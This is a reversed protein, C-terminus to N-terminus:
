RAVWLNAVTLGGDGPAVDDASLVLHTQDPDIPWDAALQEHTLVRSGPGLQDLASEVVGGVASPPLFAFVLDADGFDTRSGDGSVIEIKGDLGADAVNSRAKEALSEDIEYGLGRCDFTRAAEILIRGDGCGVDTILQGPEVNALRLLPAILGIPTGLYIGLDDAAVPKTGVPAGLRDRGVRVARLPWYAPWAWTPLDAALFDRRGPTLKRALPNDRWDTGDRHRWDLRIRITATDRRVYDLWGVGAVSARQAAAGVLDDLGFGFSSLVETATAVDRGSAADLQIVASAHQMRPPVPELTANLMASRLGDVVHEAVSQTADALGTTIKDVRGLLSAADRTLDDRRELRAIVSSVDGARLGGILLAEATSGSLEQGRDDGQGDLNVPTLHEIARRTATEVTAAVTAVHPEAMMSLHDGNASDIHLHGVAVDSWGLEINLFHRNFVDDLAKIVLMDGPYPKFQYALQTRINDEIFQRVLLQHDTHLGARQRAALRTRETVRRLRRQQHRARGALYSMGNTRAQEIHLALRQTASLQNESVGPGLADFLTLLVIQRGQDTLQQALEFAVTGGLSLAAISIPGTPAVEDIEAAYVAAIDHVAIPVDADPTTTPQGLGYMPQDPGLRAALPRFFECDVGLVHVAFLPPLNGAPQIPVLFSRGASMTTESTGLRGALRSPTPNDYLDTTSLRTGTAKEIALLLEMALLSHGGRDFFSDNEDVTEDRLIQRFLETTKATTVVNTNTTAAGMAQSDAAISDTSRPQPRRLQQAAHRDVKGNPTRPLQEHVAYLAPRHLAPLSATALARVEDINVRDTGLGPRAELHAVLRLDARGVTRLREVLSAAPDKTQSAHHMVTALKEPPASELLASLPRVDIATVIAAHVSEHGVLVAEIEEPEARAGGLNLQNDIRGLYHVSGDVIVARDGTRFFRAGPPGFRHTGSPSDDRHDPISGFKAETAAPDDLYGDVVGAGGILLEGEVGEARIAGSGDAVAVWAGAIPAGVPVPDDNQDCHHATAWVTAETPGYENTLTANPYRAAHDAVLSPPCAEGAVIVHSVWRRDGEDDARPDALIAQYLTPVALTHTPEGTRFLHRLKAIDHVEDDTPIVVAGGAALTWFLGVISSDFAASSLLLFREPARRYFQARAGTSAALHGHNVPVGRPVGTSGSTFILYAEDSPQVATPEFPVSEEGTALENAVITREVLTSHDDSVIAVSAGSAEAILEIRHEPYSPDIPVYSAGVTHVGTIAAVLDTSRPLCVIVRDGRVVDAATLAGAFAASRAALESWNLQRDGCVVAPLPSGARLESTIRQFVLTDDLLPPGVLVSGKGDDIAALRATPESVARSLIADFRELLISAADAGIVSGRYELSLDIRDNRVEVFFTLDAVATGNWLVAQTCTRGDIQVPPLEDFAVMIDTRPTPRGAQRRDAHIQSLPYSRHALAGGVAAATRGILNATTTDEDCRIRVPLTNLFYGFLENAAPHGRTSTIVGLEIDPGDTYARVAAAVAALATAFRSSPAGVRLEDPSISARRVIFGDPEAPGPRHIALRAAADQGSADLWYSRDDENNEDLQWHVFGAYDTTPPDNSHGDLEAAVQALLRDFSGADGAAHHVALVVVTTGDDVPQILVRLIPGRELDFPQRHTREIRRDLEAADVPGDGVVVSVADVSSLHRRPSSHTWTLPQHRAAVTRIAEALRDGDIDGDARYLRGVNYLIDAPRNSQEFLIALEGPTPTPAQDSPTAYTALKSAAVEGSPPVDSRQAATDEIAAALMRPTTHTFAFDETLPTDVADGLAVIMELAALSDGGVAFFDDDLGIPEVRLVREWATVVIRETPTTPSVQLAAGQRHVREPAPLAEADLKGNATLPLADVAVFAAPIAHTPLRDALFSRFEAPSPTAADDVLEVWATLIQRPNPQYGVQGLMIAVDQEDLQDDLEEIAETRTKHGLRVDWAYPVAYNHYGQETQHTHIGAANILCNTSRGTDAPRVWPARNTLFTLMDALEVDVFRYFDLYEIQDFLADDAFIQNDLLRNFGDDIRHYAKRAELVARDIADPDFRDITFQQPILRTEFLQGRSLGTIILPIGLEAARHTALTYITKYCGHCVNSFRDLSERFIENMSDSTVFEHPIDLDAISRRVNEKAGDSIFGNDLTMAYPRFGLEVLQYLAYTSDKGGSLLHLCDYDGTARQRSRDRVEILDDPTKFWSNAVPAVRDYAHCTDCVEDDDLAIGPVNDPLGCRRCHTRPAANSPSWLRVAAQSVLPHSQLAAAVEVPELRIGGIKIQDDVRGLYTAEGSEEIRVLDGSRYYRRGDITRFPSNVDEADHGLYGTTLGDHAICLEGPSGIPVRQLYRDVVMLNVGPGPRGIPVEPQLDGPRETHKPQVRHIMCGVVAETPGYENFLAMTPNHRFLDNALPSGFAEGGVVVTRLAHDDPLLKILIQLHSPTAKCWTIDTRAAIASLASPGDEAIIVLRGGALMPVFLSTITLDFTLASFLPAVLHNEGGGRDSTSGNVHRDNTLSGTYSDIAFRLYGALGRHTIPVGKPRGTSGSTFLLYAEDDEATQRRRRRGAETPSPLPAADPETALVDPLRDARIVVACGAHEVLQRRRATPQTPDLPVFSGGALLTAMMTIVAEVGRPLEIGVRDGIEIGESMLWSSVQEVWRWLRDGSLLRDGDELVIASTGILRDALLEVVPTPTAAVPGTEWEVLEAVEQRGCLTDSGIPADPHELMSRLVRDFHGVARERHDSDAAARSIDIALEVATGSAGNAHEADDGDRTPPAYNTLQVRLLHSSDIADPHVWNTAVPISGFRQQTARSIVNVVVDYDPAPATGPVAHKLTSLISRSIRRHATRFTDDILIEIDVPFVEVTPGILQRTEPGSRHHVPLGISFRDAGATRHCYLATATVLLATWALDPTLMRYDGALRDATLALLGDDCRLHLRDAAPEAARAPRYLGGLRPANRRQRWHALSRKSAKDIQSTLKAQLRGAWSYYSSVGVPSGHYAAATAEFVLASSTADTIVHHLNLYWSTSGDEHVAVVSDYGGKTMDLPQRCREKAWRDISALPIDVIETPRINNSDIMEVSGNSGVITTRLVDTSRVVSSFSEALRHADIPGDFHSRLAMNQVPADPSTLQSAWLSRQMPSLTRSGELEVAVSDTM